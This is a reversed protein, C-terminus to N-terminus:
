EYSVPSVILDLVVAAVNEGVEGKPAHMWFIWPFASISYELSGGMDMLVHMLVVSFLSFSVLWHIILVVYLLLISFTVVNWM